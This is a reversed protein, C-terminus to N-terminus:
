ELWVISNAFCHSTLSHYHRFKRGNALSAKPFCVWPGYQCLPFLPAAVIDFLTNKSCELM